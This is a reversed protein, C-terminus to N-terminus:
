IREGLLRAAPAIISKAFIGLPDPASAQFATAHLDPKPADEGDACADVTSRIQGKGTMPPVIVILDARQLEKIM